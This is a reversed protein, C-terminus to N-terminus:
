KLEWGKRFTKNVRELFYSFLQYFFTRYVVFISNSLIIKVSFQCIEFYKIQIVNRGESTLTFNSPIYIVLFHFNKFSCLM